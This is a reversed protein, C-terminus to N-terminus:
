FKFLRVAHDAADSALAVRDALSNIPQDGRTWGKAEFASPLVALFARNWFANKQQRIKEAQIERAKRRQGAAYGRSYGRQEATKEDSDM